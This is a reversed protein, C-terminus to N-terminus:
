EEWAPCIFDKYDCWKCVGYENPKPKFNRERIGQTVKAIQERHASLEEASFTHNSEPDDGHRLFHLVASGPKGRVDEVADRSLAETYLAMQLSEKAKGKKRSTKYDVVRLLDNERDIRDIKGTIRVGIEPLDFKFRKEREVVAPPNAQIHNFYDRLLEEGQQNFENGRQRYEFADQRWHKNFLKM